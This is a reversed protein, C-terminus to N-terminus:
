GTRALVGPAESEATYRALVTALHRLFLQEREKVYFHGGSFVKFDHEASTHLAWEAVERPQVMLDRDAAFLHMPVPIPDPRRPPVNSCMVLDDRAIPLLLEMWEPRESIQPPLGGLAKLTAPLGGDPDLAGPSRFIHPIEMHPPRYASLLLALPPRKGLRLRRHALRYAILSGMSHGFLLHPGRELRPGIREDLDAVLADFDTFRPEAIRSERGPLQVPLVRVSAGLGRQWGSYTTAGGGAFPFCFMPLGPEAAGDPTPLYGTM